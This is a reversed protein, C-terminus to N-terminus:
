NKLLNFKEKLKSLSLMIIYSEFSDDLHELDNKKLDEKSDSYLM